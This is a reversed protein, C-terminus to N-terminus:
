SVQQEVEHSETASILTEGEPLVIVHERVGAEDAAALLRLVPEEMPEHSLKFTGYHMPIMVKAGLDLFAQLADEPSTHVNRFSPPDYAGIPLLAIEPKLTSGIAGFGEFYATDGSHYVSHAGSRVVYGGFGRHFDSLMRAGWHSAPTHTIEIGDEHLTNWWSMEIVQEFGLDEVVESVQNPVIAVPARGTLRLTRKAIARLSSRHLHDFHAHSILVYDIPPLDNIRLGPRRLRKLIFIWNAFNPDILVNKGGIQILFGSHGIFTIGLDDGHATVLQRSEGTRPTVISHQVIRFLQRAKKRLSIKLVTYINVTRTAYDICIAAALIQRKEFPGVHL